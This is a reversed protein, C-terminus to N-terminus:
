DTLYPRARAPNRAHAPTDSRVKPFKKAVVKDSVIGFRKGRVGAIFPKSRM